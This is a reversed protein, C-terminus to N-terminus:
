TQVGSMTFSSRQVASMCFEFKSCTIYRKLLKFEQCILVSVEFQQMRSVLRREFMWSTFSTEVVQEGLLKRLLTVKPFGQRFHLLVVPKRSSGRHQCLFFAKQVASMVFGNKVFQPWTALSVKIMNQDCLWKTVHSPWTAVQWIHGFLESM